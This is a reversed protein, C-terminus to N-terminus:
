GKEQKEGGAATWGSAFAMRLLSFVENQVREFDQDFDRNEVFEEFAKEFNDTM